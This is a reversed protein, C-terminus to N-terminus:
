KKPKKLLFKIREIGETNRNSCSELQIVLEENLKLQERLIVSTKIWNLYVTVLCIVLVGSIIKFIM